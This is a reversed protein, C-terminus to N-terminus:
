CKKRRIAFLTLVLGFINFTKLFHNNVIKKEDSSFNINNAYIYRMLKYRQTYGLLIISEPSEPLYNEDKCYAWWGNVIQNRKIINKEDSLKQVINHVKEKTVTIKDPNITFGLFDFGNKTLGIQTKSKNLELKYKSLYSEIKELLRHPETNTLFLMDDCFRFYHTNQFNDCKVDFDYLAVNSVAPSLPSGESIGSYCHFVRDLIKRSFVQGFIKDFTSSIINRQLNSFYGQIDCKVYYKYNKVVSHADKVATLNSKGQIYSYVREHTHSEFIFKSDNYIQRHLFLEDDSYVTINRYKGNTYINVTKFSM